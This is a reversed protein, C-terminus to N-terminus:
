PHVGPGLSDFEDHESGASHGDCTSCRNIPLALLTRRRLRRHGDKIEDSHHLRAGATIVVEGANWLIAGQSGSGGLRYDTEVYAIPGRGRGSERGM